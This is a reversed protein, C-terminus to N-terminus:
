TVFFYLAAFISIISTTLLLKSVARLDKLEKQLVWIVRNAKGLNDQKLYRDTM